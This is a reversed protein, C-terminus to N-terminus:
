KTWLIWIVAAAITVIMILIYVLTYDGELQINRNANVLAIWIAINQSKM